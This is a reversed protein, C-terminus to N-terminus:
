ECIEIHGKRTLRVTIFLTDMPVLLEMQEDQYETDDTVRLRYQGPAIQPVVFTGKKQSRLTILPNKEGPLRLQIKVGGIGKNSEADIVM